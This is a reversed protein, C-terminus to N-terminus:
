LTMGPIGPNRYRNNDETMNPDPTVFYLENKARTIAVYRLNMEQDFQAQTQNKRVLPLKDPRIIFVRDNELGKARHVTCLTIPSQDDNFLSKIDEVFGNPSNPSFMAYCIELVAVRDNVSEQQDESGLKERLMGLQNEQWKYMLGPFKSMDMERKMIQKVVNGITAGIDRGKVKAPIRRKILEFCLKVLPATLRCVVMDGPTLMKDFQEETITDVIGLKTNPPCEIQPVIKQAELIVSEPCRYCFTLPLEKAGFYNKIQDFSDAEAGAFMYISNHTVLGDAIYLETGSVKLSYVDVPARMEILERRDVTIAIWDSKQFHTRNTYPLMLCGTMLNTAEVVQPRHLSQQCDNRNTFLPYQPDRGYAYLVKKGVESNDGIEAWVQKAFDQITLKEDSFVTQPIGYSGSVIAEKILAERRTLHFSLIWVADAKECRMRSLVSATNTDKKVTSIGVRYQNGKRMVYVMTQGVFPKFSTVCRHNPTYKSLHGKETTVAILRGTYRRAQVDLVEGTSYFCQDRLSATAIKDGIKLDEIPVVETQTESWRGAPQLIRLVQTGAPQCQHPDGVSVFNGGTDMARMVLAMQARNMDQAEDVAVLSYKPPNLGLTAPMWLMDSFSILGKRGQELGIELMSKVTSAVKEVTVGSPIDIGFRDAMAMLPEVELPTLTLQAYNLFSLVCDQIAKPDSFQNRDVEIDRAMKRYKINGNELDWKADPFAKRLTAYGLSHITQCNVTSPLRKKLEAVISTNFAAFLQTGPSRLQQFGMVLSTTKGSGAVANIAIPGDPKQFWEFIRKQYDSPEFM